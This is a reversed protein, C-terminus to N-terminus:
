EQKKRQTKLQETLAALRPDNPAIKRVRNLYVKAYDLENEGIRKDILWVYKDVIKQIGQKAQQNGPDMALVKQLQDYANQQEPTTLQFSEINGIAIEILRDIEQSDNGMNSENGALATIEAPSIDLPSPSEITNKLDKIKEDAHHQAPVAKAEAISAGQDSTTVLETLIQDASLQTTDPTDAAQDQEDQVAVQETITASSKDEEKNTATADQQKPVETIVDVTEIRAIQKSSDDLVPEPAKQTIFWVGVGLLLIIGALVLGPRITLVHDKGTTHGHASTHTKAEEPTLAQLVADVSQPRQKMEPALMLNITKLLNKNATPGALSYISPLPDHGNQLKAELRRTSAKPKTNTIFYYMTAGLAYIDGVVTKAEFLEPASYGSRLQESLTGTRAALSLRADAFDILVPAGDSNILIAEPNIDGHVTGKEHIAKLADLLDILLSEADIHKLKKSTLPTGQELDTAIYATNNLEVVNHVANINPHQLDALIEAQKIFSKLGYDFNDSDLDPKSVMVENNESRFVLDKPFYEKLTVVASLHENWAKYTIGLSDSRVAEKIEYVGITAGVPLSQKPLQAM